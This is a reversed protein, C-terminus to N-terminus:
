AKSASLWRVISFPLCDCATKSPQPTPLCIWLLSSCPVPMSSKMGLAVSPDQGSSRPAGFDFDFGVGVLHSAAHM